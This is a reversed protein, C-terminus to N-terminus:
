RVLELGAAIAALNKDAYLGEQASALLADALLVKSCVVATTLAVLALESKGVRGPLRDLEIVEVAAQTEVDGLGPVMVVRASPPMAALYPGAKALGDESLIVM